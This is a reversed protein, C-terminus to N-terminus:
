ISSICFEKTKDKMVSVKFTDRFPSWFRAMGKWNGRYGGFIVGDNKIWFNMIKVACRINVEPDYLEEPKRIGCDYKSSNASEVSLQLLGRSYPDPGVGLYNEQVTENPDFQSEFYALNSLLNAYFRKRDIRHFTPCFYDVDRPTISMLDLGLEDIAKYAIKSWEAKPWDAIYEEDLEIEEEPNRYRIGQSTCANVFFATFSAAMIWITFHKRMLVGYTDYGLRM